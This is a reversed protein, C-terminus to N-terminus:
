PPCWRRPACCVTWSPVALRKRTVPWGFVFLM